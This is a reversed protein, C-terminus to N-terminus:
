LTNKISGAINKGSFLKCIFLGLTEMPASIVRWLTRM